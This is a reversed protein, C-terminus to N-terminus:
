KGKALYTVLLWKQQQRQGAPWFTTLRIEKVGEPLDSNGHERDQCIYEYEYDMDNSYLQREVPETTIPIGEYGQMKLYEIQGQALFAARTEKAVSGSARVVAPVAQLIAVVAIGAIAAAVLVEVLSIGRERSSSHPNM